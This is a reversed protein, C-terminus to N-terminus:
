DPSIIIASCRKTGGLAEVMDEIEKQTFGGYLVAKDQIVDYLTPVDVLRGKIFFALKPRDKTAQHETLLRRTAEEMRRSGDKTFDINLQAEGRGNKCMESSKLHRRNVIPDAKVCYTHAEGNKEKFVHRTSGKQSCDVVEFVGFTADTVSTVKATASFSPFVAVMGAIALYVGNKM